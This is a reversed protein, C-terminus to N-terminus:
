TIQVLRFEEVRSPAPIKRDAAGSALDAGGAEDLYGRIRHRSYALLIFGEERRFKQGWNGICLLPWICIVSFLRQLGRNVSMPSVDSLRSAGGTSWGEAVVHALQGM